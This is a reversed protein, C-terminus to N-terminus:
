SKGETKVTNADEELLLESLLMLSVSFQTHTYKHIQTYLYTHTHTHPDAPMDKLVWKREKRGLLSLSDFM